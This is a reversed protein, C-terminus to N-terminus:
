RGQILGARHMNNVATIAYDSIDKADNFEIPNETMSLKIDLLDVHKLIMVTMQERTINANTM